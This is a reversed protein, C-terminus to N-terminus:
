AGKPKKGRKWNKFRIRYLLPKMSMKAMMVARDFTMVAGVLVRPSGDNGPAAAYINVYSDAAVVGDAKM